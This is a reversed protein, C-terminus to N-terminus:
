SGIGFKKRQIAVEEFARIIKGCREPTAYRALRVIDNDPKFEM